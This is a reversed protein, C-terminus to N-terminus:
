QLQPPAPAAALVLEDPSFVFGAVRPMAQFVWVPFTVDHIGHDKQRHFKAHLVLMNAMSDVFGEPHAPDFAHWDFGRLKAMTCIMWLLSHCADFTAGTPQDTVLDLVPLHTIEGTGVGKVTVWDVANTYSWECFCHHYEVDVLQGSIACPIGQAHGQAKTALFQRSEKRLAHDPRFVDERFTDVNEHENNPINM